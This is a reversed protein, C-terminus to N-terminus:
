VWSGRTNYNSTRLTRAVTDQNLDNLNDRHFPRCKSLIYTNVATQFKPDCKTHCRFRYSRAGSHPHHYPRAGGSAGGLGVEAELEGLLLRRRSTQGIGLPPVGMDM